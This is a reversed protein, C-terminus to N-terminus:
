DSIGKLVQSENTREARFQRVPRNFPDASDSWAAVPRAAGVQGMRRWEYRPNPGHCREACRRSFAHDSPSAETHTFGDLPNIAEVSEFGIRTRTAVSIRWLSEALAKDAQVSASETGQALAPNPQGALVSLTLATLLTTSMLKM